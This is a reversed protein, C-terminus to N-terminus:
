ETEKKGKITVLYKIIATRTASDAVPAGFTHIMKDVIKEWNKETMEPQMNIYEVSHCIMCNSEVLNVNEEYPLSPTFDLLDIRYPKSTTPESNEHYDNYCGSSMSIACFILVAIYSKLPFIKKISKFM